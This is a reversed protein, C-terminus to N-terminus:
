SLRPPHEGLKIWMVRAQVLAPRNMRLAEITARGVATLGKLEKGGESWAFHKTWVQKQPHFLAVAKGSEPDIATQRDSKHRNCSPCAFCLNEFVTEGEASLPLIHEFEFTMATLFEATRCYACCESFHQRIRRKLEVRIYTSM